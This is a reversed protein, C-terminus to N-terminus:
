IRLCNYKEKWINTENKHRSWKRWADPIQPRLFQLESCKRSEQPGWGGVRRSEWGLPGPLWSSSLQSGQPRFPHHPHLPLLRHHHSPSQIGATPSLPKRPSSWSWRSPPPISGFLPWWCRFCSWCVDAWHCMWGLLSRYSTCHYFYRPIGYIPGCSQYTFSVSLQCTDGEGVVATAWDIFCRGLRRFRGTCFVSSLDREM